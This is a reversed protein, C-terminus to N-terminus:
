RPLFSNIEELSRLFILNPYLDLLCNIKSIQTRYAHPNKPDLYQDTEPLYFDPFYNRKRGLKDRWELPAPRAWPIELEDLREALRLEWTSDLMVGKYFIPNKRLRRHESARLKEGIKNRTEESHPRSLRGAARIKEKNQEFRPNKECHTPHGRARAKESPTDIPFIKGCWQCAGKTGTCKSLHKKLYRATM